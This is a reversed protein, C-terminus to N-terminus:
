LNTFPDIVEGDGKVDSLGTTMAEVAELTIIELVPEEYRM